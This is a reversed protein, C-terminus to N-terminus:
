GAPSVGPQGQRPRLRRFEALVDRGRLALALPYAVMGVGIVAVLRLTPGLTTDHVLLERAVLCLAFMAVSAQAVGAISRVFRRRDIGITRTVLVTLYTQVPVTVIAYCAAVGVIGWRLGLAFAGIALGTRLVSFRLLTRARGLAMLVREGVATFGQMLTVCALIQIVPAARHWRHGLVVPVFDPAVVILGLMCPAVVAGVVKIVRLWVSGMRPLDDQIRSLAPFLTDQIPVFLRQLPLLIVNYSVSYLGLAVTGLYRGVLINDVNGQAYDLIRSSLVAGGFGGLERLSRFSFMLRPLWDSLIWLFAMSLFSIALQQAVLAWAGGGAAAVTVGVVSGGITAIVLRISIARFNMARQFLVAPVMQLTTPLFSISVVMFLPRVRPQHFFDALPGALAIGGAVLLVGVVATTWFVTSRDEETITKRQVLGAGLGLDSFALVLSSFLLAIGALGYEHPALLRVLVLGSVLRTVQMIVSVSATWGLGKVVHSRLSGAVVRDSAAVDALVNGSPESTAPPPTVSTM